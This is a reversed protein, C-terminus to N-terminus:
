LASLKPNWVYSAFAMVFRRESAAADKGKGWALAQPKLVIVARRALYTRQAIDSAVSCGFLFCM